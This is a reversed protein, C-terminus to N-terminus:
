FLFDSNFVSSAKVYWYIVVLVGDGVSLVVIGVCCYAM